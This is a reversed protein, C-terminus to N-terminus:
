LFDLIFEQKRVLTSKFEGNEIAIKVQSNRKQNSM